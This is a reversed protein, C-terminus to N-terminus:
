QGGKPNDPSNMMEQYSKIPFNPLKFESNSINANFQVKKAMEVRKVGMVDAESKLPIGKYIWVKAQDFQWIDCMYGLVKEKGIKKAKNSQLFSKIDKYEDNMKQMENVNTKIIINEEFDVTYIIGNDYKSLEKTVTQRGMTTSVTESKQLELDGFDKFILTSAGEEKIQVGYVNGTATIAYEVIGSKVEYRKEKAYVQFTFVFFLLTITAIIKLTKM